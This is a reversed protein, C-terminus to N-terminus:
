QAPEEFNQLKLSLITGENMVCTFGPFDYLGGTMSNGAGYKGADEEYFDTKGYKSELEAKTMQQGVHLKDKTIFVDDNSGFDSRVAIGLVTCDREAKSEDSFNHFPFELRMGHSGEQKRYATLVNNASYGPAIMDDAQGEDLTYDTEALKSKLEDFSMPFVFEVDQIYATYDNWEVNAAEPTQAETMEPASAPESSPETQASQTQQVDPTVDSDNPKSCASNIIAAATLVAIATALVKKM